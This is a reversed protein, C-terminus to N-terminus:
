KNPMGTLIFNYLGRGLSTRRYFFAREPNRPMRNGGRKNAAMYDKANIKEVVKMSEMDCLHNDFDESNINIGKETSLATMIAGPNSISDLSQLIFLGVEDLQSLKKLYIAKSSSDVNEPRCCATLYSAYFKRKERNAEDKAQQLTSLLDEVYVPANLYFNKGSLTDKIISLDSTHRNVVDIVNNLQKRSRLGLIFDVFTSIVISPASCMKIVIDFFTSGVSVKEIETNEMM